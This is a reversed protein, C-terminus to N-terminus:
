DVLVHLHKGAEVFLAAICHAKQVTRGVVGRERFSRRDPLHRTVSSINLFKVSPTVTPPCVDQYWLLQHVKSDLTELTGPLCACVVARHYCHASVSSLFLCLLTSPFWPPSSEHNGTHLRYSEALISFSLICPM